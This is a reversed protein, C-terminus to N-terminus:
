PSVSWRDAADSVRRGGDAVLQHLLPSFLSWGDNLLYEGDVTTLRWRDKNLLKKERAVGTVEAVPVAFLPGGEDHKKQLADTILGSVVGFAANASFKEDFFALGEPTLIMTGMKTDTAGRVWATRKRALEGSDTV